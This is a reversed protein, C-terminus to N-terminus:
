QVMRELGPLTFRFSAGKGPASEAWIRGGHREIIRRCLALGVGTGEFEEARHLRQFVGFLKDAYAMSFGVGNDRVVYVTEDDVQESYVEIRRPDADRTFKVANALLNFLVQKLLSRDAYCSPLSGFEPKGIPQEHIDELEQWIQEILASMDVVERIMETRSLRSFRLLDDILMGMRQSAAMMRDLYLQGEEDLKNRYDQVLAAGFGSIARLPARLDHSVSYSFGELERNAIELEETRQRVRNELEENLQRIEREARKRETLDLAIVLRREGILQSSFEIVRDSGDRCRVIVEMPEFPEGTSESHEIRHRWETAVSSRYEPDPYALPWWQSVNSIDATSYGFLRVFQDNILNIDNNKDTVSMAVPSHIVLQRFQAERERLVQEAIIPDTVDRVVGRVIRGASSEANFLKGVLQLYREGRDLHHWRFTISEANGNQLLRVLTEALTAADDPSLLQLFGSWTPAFNERLLGTIRYSTDDWIMAGSAPDLEWVGQQAASLALQMRAQQERLSAERRGIAALMREFDVQLQEIENEPLDVDGGEDAAMIRARSALQRAPKAILREAFMFLLVAMIGLAVVVASLVVVYQALRSSLPPLAYYANIEGLVEDEYFITQTIPLLEETGFPLLGSAPQEPFVFSQALPSKLSAFLGDRKRLVQVARFRPDLSLTRLTELAAERDDFDLSAQLNLAVVSLQSGVEQEVRSQHTRAEYTLIALAVLAVAIIATVGLLRLLSQRLSIGGSKM